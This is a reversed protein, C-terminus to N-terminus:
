GFQGRNNRTITRVFVMFATLANQIARWSSISQTVIEVIIKPRLYFRRFADKSAQILDKESLGSPIYTVRQHALKSWDREFHGSEEPNSAIECGPWMTLFNQQFYNLDISTAFQITEELSEKTEGPFGFIFNGKVKLGADRARKVAEAVQAKTTNKKISKLLRDSGSEIGMEIFWCGAEKIKHLRDATMFKTHGMCYWSLDMSEGIMTDCIVFLKEKDLIFNDDLMMLDKIGYEEM